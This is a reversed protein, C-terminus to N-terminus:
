ADPESQAQFYQMLAQLADDEELGKLPERNPALLTIRRWRQGNDGIRDTYRMGASTGHHVVLGTAENPRNPFPAGQPLADRVAHLAKSLANRSISDLPYCLDVDFGHEFRIYIRSYNPELPRWHLDLTGCGHTMEDVAEVLAPFRAELGDLMEGYAHAEAQMTPMGGLGQAADFTADHLWTQVSPHSTIRESVDDLSEPLLPRLRDIWENKTPPASSM